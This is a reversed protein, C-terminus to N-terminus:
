AKSIPVSPVYGLNPSLWREVDAVALSKRAAYDAVQDRGVRGVSFYRAEPHALYYGCVSAAPMMACSETLQVGIAEEASLLDFLIRKESHDPCAPYGPAPRIGRYQGKTLGEVTLNEDPSYGWLCTRVQQHMYEAMGEALRDALVKVMIGKYDDHDREYSEVLEEVGLGATVVFLGVCDVVGAGTPAIFDSLCYCPRSQGRDTQQRLMHLRALERSRSDDAFVVIDDGDSNAPFLGIVAKCALKGRSILSELLDRGDDYLARAQSGKRPDALIDPYTGRLEWAHFFPTWDISAVVAQIDVEDLIRVGWSTPRTAHHGNAPFARARASALDLLPKRSGGDGRIARLEAYEHQVESVFADRTEQRILREVVSVSRSADPVYVVPGDYAPDIKVASHIRSTTAGGILLPQGFGLRQMESAVHVMEDLSPTILGSLGVIDATERQATELITEASAMVGLDIIEYNNCGLVVGVINKGIDHVDGKVTALVVKGASGSGGRESNQVEIFPQLYAVAKKMVRASKVVQPLFMQGSGFLDGVRNMGDMLPGEIVDLPKGALQRAEEVDEEIYDAIGHVLAHSLREDVPLRRWADDM